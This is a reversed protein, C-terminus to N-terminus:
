TKLPEAKVARSDNLGEVSDYEEDSDDDSSGSTESNEEKEVGVLM